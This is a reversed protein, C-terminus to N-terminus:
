KFGGERREKENWIVESVEGGGMREMEEGEGVWGNQLRASSVAELGSQPLRRRGMGTAGVRARSRCGSSGGDHRSRCGGGSGGNLADRGQTRSRNDSGRGGLLYWVRTLGMGGDEGCGLGDRLAGCDLLARVEQRPSDEM